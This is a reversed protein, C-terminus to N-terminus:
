RPVRRRRQVLLLTVTGIVGGVVLVTGVATTATSAQAVVVDERVGDVEWSCVSRAPLIEYHVRAGARPAGEAGYAVLCPETGEDTVALTTRAVSLWGVVLVAIGILAALTSVLMAAATRITRSRQGAAAADAEPAGSRLPEPTTM